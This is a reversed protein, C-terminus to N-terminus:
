RASPSANPASPMSAQPRGAGRHDSHTACRGETGVMDAAQEAGLANVGRAILERGAADVRRLQPGDLVVRDGIGDRHLLPEAQLRGGVALEAARGPVHVEDVLQAADAVGGAVQGHLEAVRGAGDLPGRGRQVHVALEVQVM